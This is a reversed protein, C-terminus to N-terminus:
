NSRKSLSHFVVCNRFDDCGMACAAQLLGPPPKDEDRYIESYCEDAAIVFDHREALGILRQLQEIPMVSGTPNGPSSIYLIQCRRWVAEPVRDFDPLFGNQELTNLYCPEAGALLAAGEYIQYFPNPMLVLPEKAPDILAQAFSFLAERTGSVPLVQAEPDVMGAKLRFRQELWLSTAERLSLIGLTTPYKMLGSLKDILAARIFGPVPHRPEGVSLAIPYLDKEPELGEKLLRLKEFPYPYLHALGPNM